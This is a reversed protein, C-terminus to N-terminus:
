MEENCTDEGQDGSERCNRNRNGEKPDRTVSVDAAILVNILSSFLSVKEWERALRIM